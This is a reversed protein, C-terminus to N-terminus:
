RQNKEKYHRLLPEPYRLMTAGLYKIKRFRNWDGPELYKYANMDWPVHKFWRHYIICSTTVQSKSFDEAKFLDWGGRRKESWFPHWVLDARNGRIFTVLKSIRDSVYEDDDDLHTIFDGNALSLAHNFTTTGAVMWRLKADEPYRGREPLNIFRVREDKIKSVIEVTDDTCCDGVVIVELNRYDQELISRLSREVLLRGRNYTGVCVSVLPTEKQYVSQYEKSNREQQFTDFLVDSVDIRSRLADVEANLHEVKAQLRRVTKPTFLPVLINKLKDIM